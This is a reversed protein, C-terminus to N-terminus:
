TTVKMCDLSEKELAYTVLTRGKNDLETVKDRCRFVYATVCLLATDHM